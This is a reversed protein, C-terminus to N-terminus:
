DVFIDTDGELVLEKNFFEPKEIVGLEKILRPWEVFPIFGTKQWKYEFWEKTYPNFIRSPPVHCQFGLLIDFSMLGDKSKYLFRDACPPSDFCKFYLHFGKSTECRPASSLLDSSEIFKILSKKKQEKTSYDSIDMDVVVMPREICFCVSSEPNSKFFDEGLRYKSFNNFAFVRFKGYPSSSVIRFGNEFYPKISSGIKPINSIKENFSQLVELDTFKPISLSDSKIYIHNYKFPDCYYFFNLIYQPETFNLTYKTDLSDRSLHAVEKLQKNKVFIDGVFYDGKYLNLTYM